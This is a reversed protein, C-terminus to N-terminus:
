YKPTDKPPTPLKPASPAKEAKFDKPPPADKIDLVTENNSCGAGIMFGMLLLAALLVRM